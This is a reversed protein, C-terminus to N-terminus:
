MSIDKKGKITFCFNCIKCAGLAKTSGKALVIHCKHHQPTRGVCFTMKDAIQDLTPKFHKRYINRLHSTFDIQGISVIWTQINFCSSRNTKCCSALYVKYKCHLYLVSIFWFLMSFLQTCYLFLTVNITLNYKVPDNRYYLQYTEQRFSSILVAMIILNCPTDQAHCPEQVRCDLVHIIAQTTALIEWSPWVM